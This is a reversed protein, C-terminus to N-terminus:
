MVGANNIMLDISRGSALFREAFEGVSDLSSLDLEDVEVRELGRLAEEAVSRRRAPVVVHAGAKSLVRTTELGVGSYGGTVIALRGTLDVGAMVETATSTPGFGSGIKHQPTTM